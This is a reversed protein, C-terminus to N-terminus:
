FPSESCFKVNYKSYIPYYTKKNRYYDCENDHLVYESYLSYPYYKINYDLLYINNTICDINSVNSRGGFEYRAKFYTFKFVCMSNNIFIPSYIYKKYGYVANDARGIKDGDYKIYSMLKNNYDYKLISFIDLDKISINLSNINNHKYEMNECYDSINNIIVNYKNLKSLKKRENNIYNFIKKDVGDRGQYTNYYTLINIEHSLILKNICTRKLNLMINFLSM